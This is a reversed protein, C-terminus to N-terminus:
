SDISIIVAMHNYSVSLNFVTDAGFHLVIYNLRRYLRLENIVPLFSM